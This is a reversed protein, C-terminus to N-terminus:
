QADDTTYKVVISPSSGHCLSPQSRLDALLALPQSMDGVQETTWFHDALIRGVREGSVFHQLPAQLICCDFVKQLAHRRERLLGDLARNPHAHARTLPSLLM